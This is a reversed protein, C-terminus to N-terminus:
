HGRFLDAHYAIQCAISKVIDDPVGDDCKSQLRMDIQDNVYDVVVFNGEATLAIETSFYDLRCIGAIMRTLHDLAHLQYRHLDQNSVISYHHSAPDWWCPYTRQHCYLVRFWAKQLGLIVPVITAQLLYSDTPYEKRSTMVQSISSAGMRVGLSGGGHSPKITIQSGLPALNLPELDPKQNYPPLVITHPTHIGASILRFHMMAKDWAQMAYHHQNLYNPVNAEAWEVLRLFRHDEDSARDLFTTFRLGGADLKPLITDLISPQIQFISLRYVSCAEHILQVFDADHEWNWALCLDYKELCSM